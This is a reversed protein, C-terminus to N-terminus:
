KELESTTSDSAISAEVTASGIATAISMNIYFPMDYSLAEQGLKLTAYALGITVVKQALRNSLPPSQTEHQERDM